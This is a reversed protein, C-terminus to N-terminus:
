QDEGDDFNSIAKLKLGKCTDIDPFGVSLLTLCMCDIDWLDIYFQLRKKLDERNAAVIYHGGQVQFNDMMVMNYYTLNENNWDLYAQVNERAEQNYQMPLFAGIFTIKNDIKTDFILRLQKRCQPVEQKPFCDAHYKGDEEFVKGVTYEDCLIDEIFSEPSETDSTPNSESSTRVLNEMYALAQYFDAFKHKRILMGAEELKPLHDSIEHRMLYYALQNILSIVLDRTLNENRFYSEEVEFCRIIEEHNEPTGNDRLTAALNGAIAAELARVGEKQATALGDRLTEIADLPRDFAKYATALNMQEILCDYIINRRKYANMSVKHYHLTKEQEKRRRFILAINGSVTGVNDCDFTDLFEIAREYHDLIETAIFSFYDSKLLEMDEQMKMIYKTEFRIELLNDRGDSLSRVLQIVTKASANRVITESLDYWCFFITRQYKEALSLSKHLLDEIDPKESHHKKEDYEGLESWIRAIERTAENETYTLITNLAEQSKPKGHKFCHIMMDHVYEELKESFSNERYLNAVAIATEWYEDYDNNFLAEALNKMANCISEISGESKAMALDERLRDIERSDYVTDIANEKFYKEGGEITSFRQRWKERFGKIQRTHNCFRLFDCAKNLETIVESYEKRLWHMEMIREELEFGKMYSGTNLYIESLRRADIIFSSELNEKEALAVADLLYEEAENYRKLAAAYHGMNGRFLIIKRKLREDNVDVLSEYAETALRLATENDGSLSYSNCMNLKAGYANNIDGKKVWLDHAKQLTAIAEGHEDMGYLSMGLSNHEGIYGSLNGASAYISILKKHLKSAENHNGTLRYADALMSMSRHFEFQKGSKLATEFYLNATLLLENTLKLRAECDSKHFLLLATESLNLELGQDLIKCVCIYFDRLSETERIQLLKAMVISFERSFSDADEHLTGYFSVGKMMENVTYISDAYEFDVFIDAIAVTLEDKSGRSANVRKFVKFLENEINREDYLALHMWGARIANYEMKYLKLLIDLDSLATLLKNNNDAMAYLKLIAKAHAATKRKDAYVSNSVGDENSENKLLLSYYDGLIECIKTHKEQSLRNRIVDKLEDDTVNWYDGKIVRFQELINRASSWELASFSISESALKHCESETMSLPSHVLLALVHDAITAVAEGAESIMYSYLYTYLHSQSNISSIDSILKDLNHFRGHNILFDCVSRLYGPAETIKSSLIDKQQSASLSKGYINLYDTVYKSAKEKDFAPMQKCNWGIIEALETMDAQNTSCIFRINGSTQAPIWSLMRTDEDNLLNLDNIVVYIPKSTTLNGVWGLFATRFEEMDRPSTFYFKDSGSENNGSFLSNMMGRVLASRLPKDPSTNAGGMKGIQYIIENVVAPWYRFEDDSGCNILIKDGDKPEWATLLTTKGIEGDGYLMLSRHSEKCYTDLFDHNEEIPLYNRLLEGNYWQRRVEQVREPIPFEKDCWALIDEMVKEGFEEVSNYTSSRVDPDTKIREKLIKLKEDQETHGYWKDTLEESRFYFSSYPANDDREHDLVAYLMELETISKGEKGDLWPITDSIQHPVDAMLSGYRNGLIGIFYPRCRDIESLCIPLVQGGLQDDETIGWRLDVSFFSVGRDSCIRNLRPVLVENFYTRENEMDAFTSSLFVRIVPPLNNSHKNENHTM